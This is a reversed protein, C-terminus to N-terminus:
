GWATWAWAINSASARSGPMGSLFQLGGSAPDFQVVFCAAARALVANLAMALTRASVGSNTGCAMVSLGGILPVATLITLWPLGM